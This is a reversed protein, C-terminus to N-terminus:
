GNALFLGKGFTQTLKEILQKESENLNAQEVYRWRKEYLLFAQEGDIESAQSDWMLGDLQPYDHRNIAKNM